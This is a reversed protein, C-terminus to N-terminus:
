EPDQACQRRGEGVYWGTDGGSMGVEAMEAAGVQVRNKGKITM